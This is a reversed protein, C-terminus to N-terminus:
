GNHTGEALIAVDIDTIFAVLAKLFRAADAGDVVAHDVTLSFGIRQEVSYSGDPNIVPRPTIANVGLIAIQPSNLIPTFSEIGFAGLNTVTFTAGALLDPNISGAQAQAVLPKVEASFERLSMTSAWRITPVLLGRPTDVALGLHVTEYSRLVQDQLTANISPFRMATKVAAYAVLDGITIQNMGLSEDGAKLRARLSLLAAAPASTDFSLQAHNSMSILMREAVLKRIGKLPIETVPGPFDNGEAVASSDESEEPEAETGELEAETGVEPSATEIEPEPEIAEPVATPEPQPEIEDEAIAHLPQVEVETLDDRTIRGGIGTGTRANGPHEQAARTRPIEEEPFKGTSWRPTPEEAEVVDVPPEQPVSAAARAEIVAKVDSILIRGEPGTGPIGSIELGAEQAARRARPSATGGVDPDQTDMDENAVATGDEHLVAPVEEVPAPSEQPAAPEDVQLPAVLDEISEGQTGVIFFPAKVPVEDGQNALLALVTGTVGAPVEMSSKDTEIEAIITNPTVTDGVAVRWSTVLCSEVTNGLQPMVIVDAM